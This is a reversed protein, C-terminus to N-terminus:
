RKLMLRLSVPADSKNTWMWCYDQDASVELKGESRAIGDHKAPFVVQEGEHYHVNFNMPQLSAFSWSVAQGKALKGCVEAFKGPAVTLAREFQGSADWVIDVVGAMAGTAVAMLAITLAAHRRLRAIM